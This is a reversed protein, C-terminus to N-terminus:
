DTELGYVLSGTQWNIGLTGGAAFGRTHLGLHGPDEFGAAHFSAGEANRFRGTRAHEFGSGPSRYGVQYHPTM